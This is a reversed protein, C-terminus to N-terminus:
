QQKGICVIYLPEKSSDLKLLSALEDKDFSGKPVSALGLDAAMLLANQAIHGAELLAYDRSKGGYRAVIREPNYVMVIIINSLVVFPQTRSVMNVQDRFRGGEELVLKEEELSYRYIGSQVSDIKDIIFHLEVPYTAGASPATRMAIGDSTHTKGCSAWVIDDLATRSISGVAFARTTKRNRLADRLTGNNRTEAAQQSFLMSATLAASSIVLGIGLIKSM